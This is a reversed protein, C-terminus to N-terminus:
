VRTPSHFVAHCAETTGHGGDSLPEDTAVRDQRCTVRAVM